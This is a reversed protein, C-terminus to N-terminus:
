FCGGPRPPPNPSDPTKPPTYWPQITTDSPNAPGGNISGDSKQTEKTGSTFNGQGDDKANKIITKEGTVPNEIDGNWEGTEPDYTLEGLKKGTKADYYPVRTKGDKGTIVAGTKVKPKEGNKNANELGLNKLAPTPPCKPDRYTFIVEIGAERLTSIREDQTMALWKEPSVGPPPPNVSLDYETSNGGDTCSNTINAEYGGTQVDKCDYIYKPKEPDPPPPPPPVPPINQCNGDCGTCNTCHTCDTCSDCGVCNTCSACDTCSNCNTTCGSHCETTCGAQCETTCGTQCTTQCITQCTTQCIDVCGTTCGNQCIAQCAAQCRGTCGTTCDDCGQCVTNCNQCSVCSYCPTNCGTTCNTTCGDCSTCGTTCDQCVYCNGFCASYCGSACSTCFGTCGQCSQCGTCNDCSTCAVCSTCENCNACGAHAIDSEFLWTKSDHGIHRTDKSTIGFLSSATLTNHLSESIIFGDIVLKNKSLEM